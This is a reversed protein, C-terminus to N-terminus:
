CTLKAFLRRVLRFSAAIYQCRKLTHYPAIGKKFEGWTDSTKTPHRTHYPNGFVDNYELYMVWGEKFSAAIATNDFKPVPYRPITIIIGQPAASPTKDPDRKENAGLPALNYSFYYNDHSPFCLTIRLALAPGMGINTLIGYIHYFYHIPLNTDTGNKGVQLDIVRKRDMTGGGGDHLTELVCVPMSADQHHREEQKTLEATKSAMWFTAIALGITGAATLIGVALLWYNLENHTLM